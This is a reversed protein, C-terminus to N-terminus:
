RHDNPLTDLQYPDALETLGHVATDVRDPSDMGEVWTVMQDELDPYEGVHHVFQQGYLRAVPAACLRKRVKATVELIMLMLLGKTVGDRRLQEWTPTVIRRTMDGGCNKEVVIAPRSYSPSDAPPLAGITSAWPAQGTPSFTCNTRAHHAADFRQPWLPEGVERGLPDLRDAELASLEDVSDNLEARRDALTARVDRCVGHILAEGSPPEQNKRHWEIGYGQSYAIGGSNAPRTPPSSAPSPSGTSM